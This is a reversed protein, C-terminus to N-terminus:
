YNVMAFATFYRPTTSGDERVRLELFRLPM